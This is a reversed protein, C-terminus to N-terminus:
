AHNLQIHRNCFQLAQLQHSILLIMKGSGALQQLHLLMEKEAAPDLESFPEDLIIVDSEKYLARAFAVRQRQGGSINRGQETIPQMLGTINERSILGAAEAKATINAKDFGNDHLKINNLISDSIVFPQQKGYAIRSTCARRAAANTVTNNIRIEGSTPELFGLLLNILTTKGNGSYGSILVFDGRNFEVSVGSLVKKSEFCFSV